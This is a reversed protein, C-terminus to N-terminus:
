TTEGLQQAISRAMSTETDGAHRTATPELLAILCEEGTPTSTNHRLGRPVVFFQGAQVDVAGGDAESRGIRLTGLLVLFMEDEHTHAHWPFEGLIRAAKVYHDNVQGVIGPSWYEPRAAASELLSIPKQQNNM